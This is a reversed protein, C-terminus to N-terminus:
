REVKQLKPKNKEHVLSYREIRNIRKFNNDKVHLFECITSRFKQFYSCAATRARFVLLAQNGELSSVVMGTPTVLRCMVFSIFAKLGESESWIPFLNQHTKAFQLHFGVVTHATELIIRIRLKACVLM